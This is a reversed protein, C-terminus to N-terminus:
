FKSEWHLDMFKVGGPAFSLHAIADVLVNFAKATEGKKSSRYLIIDGHEAIYLAHDRIRDVWDDPLGSDGWERQLEMIRLPVAAQLAIPLLIAASDM